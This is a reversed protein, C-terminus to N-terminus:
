RVTIKGAMAPHINCHFDFIGTSTFTFSYSQGTGLPSSKFIQGLGSKSGPDNIVQHQTTDLNTWTVTTGKSVIIYAPSFAYNKITISANTENLLTVEVRPNFGTTMVTTV